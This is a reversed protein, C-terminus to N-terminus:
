VVLVFLLCLQGGGSLARFTTTPHTHRRNSGTIPASERVLRYLHADSKEWFLFQGHIPKRNKGSDFVLPPSSKECCSLATRAKLLGARVKAACTSVSLRYRPPPSCFSAARRQSPERNADPRRNL